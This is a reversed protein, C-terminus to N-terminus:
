PAPTRKIFHYPGAIAGWVQKGTADYGRDWSRMSAGDLTVEATAYAAGRLDSACEKDTTAGRWVGSQIRLSVTCGARPQLMADTLSDLAGNRWGQVFREPQDITYVASLVESDAGNSVRYVRQRYPKDASDAIAQEVYLWHGDTRQPWIPIMALSIAYYGSDAASQDRSDYQGAMLAAVEAASDGVGAQTTSDRATSACGGLVAVLIFAAALSVCRHTTRRSSIIHRNQAWFRM